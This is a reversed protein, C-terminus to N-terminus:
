QSKSANAAQQLCEVAILNITQNNYTLPVTNCSTAQQFITGVAYEVGQNQGTVVLSNLRPIIVFTYLIIGLLIVVVVILGIVLVDKKEKIM